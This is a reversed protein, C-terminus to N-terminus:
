MAMSGAMDAACHRWPWHKLPDHLEDASEFRDVRAIADDRDAAEIANVQAVPRQDLAQSRVRRPEASGAIITLKSGSGRSNRCGASGGARSVFKRSRQRSSEPM